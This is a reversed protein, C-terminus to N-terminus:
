LPNAVIEVSILSRAPRALSPLSIGSSYWPPVKEIELRPMNPMRSNAATMLEGWPASSGAHDTSHVVVDGLGLSDMFEIELGYPDEEVVYHTEMWCVTRARGVFGCNQPDPLLPRLRSHMAQDPDGAADLADCVAATYLQSKVYEFMEQDTEFM